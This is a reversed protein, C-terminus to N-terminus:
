KGGKKARHLTSLELKDLAAALDEPEGVNGPFIVYPITGWPHDKPLLRGDAGINTAQYIEPKADLEVGAMRILELEGIRRSFAIQQDDDIEQNPFVLVVHDLWAQRLAAMTADDLRRALDIGTVEAGIEPALKAVSFGM